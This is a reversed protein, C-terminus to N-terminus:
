PDSCDRQYGCSLCLLKCHRDLMPGGCLDCRFGSAPRVAGVEDGASHSSAPGPEPGSAHGSGPDLPGDTPRSM